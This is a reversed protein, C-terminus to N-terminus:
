VGDVDCGHVTLGGLMFVLVLDGGEDGEKGGM